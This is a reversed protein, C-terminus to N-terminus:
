HRELCPLPPEAPLYPLGQFLWTGPHGRPGYDPHKKCGRPGLSLSCKVIRLELVGFSLPLGPPESGHGPSPGRSLPTAATGRGSQLPRNPPPPLLVLDRTLGGLLSVSSSIVAATPVQPSHPQGWGPPQACSRKDKYALQALLDPFATGQCRDASGKTNHSRWRQSKPTSLIVHVSSISFNAEM